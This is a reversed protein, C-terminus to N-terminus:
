TGGPHVLDINRACSEFGLRRYARIAADDDPDVRACIRAHRAGIRRAAYLTALIASTALGQRRHASHTGVPELVVVPSTGDMWGLCFAASEGDRTVLRDLGSQYLPEAVLRAYADAPTDSTSSATGFVEAQLDARTAILDADVAHVQVDTPLSPAPSLDALDLRLHSHHVRSKNTQWGRAALADLLETEVDAITIVGPAGGRSDDFWALVEDVVELRAPDVQLDLRGPAKSWAWAVTESGISWSAARWSAAPAGVEHWFSTLEGAHWRSSWSWLRQSLDQMRALQDPGVSLELGNSGRTM